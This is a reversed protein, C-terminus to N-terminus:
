PYSKRLDKFVHLCGIVPPFAMLSFSFLIATWKIVIVLIFDHAMQFTQIEESNVLMGSINWSQCKKAESYLGYIHFATELGLKEGM